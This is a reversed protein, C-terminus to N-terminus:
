SLTLKHIVLLSHATENIHTDQIMEHM